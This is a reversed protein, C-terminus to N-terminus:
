GTAQGGFLIEFFGRIDWPNVGNKSNNVYATSWVLAYWLIPVTSVAILGFLILKFKGVFRNRISLSSNKKTFHILGIIFLVIVIFDRRQYTSLACLFSMLLWIISSKVFKNNKLYALVCCVLPFYIYVYRVFQSLYIEKEKRSPLLFEFLSLDSNRYVNVFVVLWIVAYVSILMHYRPISFSFGVIPINLEEKRVLTNGIVAGVLFLATLSIAIVFPYLSKASQVLQVQSFKNFAYSFAMKENLVWAWAPILYFISTLFATLFAVNFPDKLVYKISYTIILGNVIALLFFLSNNLLLTNM